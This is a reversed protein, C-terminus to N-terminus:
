TLPHTCNDNFSILVWVADMLHGPTAFVALAGDPVLAIISNQGISLLNNETSAGFRPQFQQRRTEGHCSRVQEVTDKVAAFAPQEHPQGIVGLPKGNLNPHLQREVDPCDCDPKLFGAGSGSM